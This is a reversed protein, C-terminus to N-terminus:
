PKIQKKRGQFNKHGFYILLGIVACILVNLMDSKGSSYLLTLTIVMGTIAFVIGYRLKFYSGQMKKRLRIMSACVFLYVFLRIIVAITLAAIFSWAFSIICGTISFIVLSTTPTHYLPHVYSFLKPFQGENSLAYPLRSGSLVIANLTAFISIFAGMAILRGGWPGLFIAAADALPKESSALGPLTGICVLQILCYFVTVVFAGTLLAIPLNKKPNIIEGSNVLVSEFGGFAFVLLMVSTAFNGTTPPESFTLNAPDINPIGAIIFLALPLLKAITFINTLRTSNKVGIFNIITLFLTILFICLYRYGPQNMIPSFVSLYIVLLSILTAYNFIRSLLLLWGMIFAAFPGFSELIYLYPGGTRDFRSSVEAFVLIIILIAIACVIFALLSYPGSLRFIKSPLGFIGAGIISNIILLVLDWKYIGRQLM